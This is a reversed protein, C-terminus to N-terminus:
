GGIVENVAVSQAGFGRPQVVGQFSVQGNPLIQATASIVSAVRPDALLASKGFAAIRGAEIQSQVTGAESPLLSGYDTHYLLSKLATQLRRGLAQALNSYGAISQFDGRWPLMIQNIPGLYLDVGLFNTLYSPPQGVPSVQAGTTPMVLDSGYPAVGADKAAATYPPRLNNTAAINQWQEFDGLARAAVDMLNDNQQVRALNINSATPQRLVLLFLALQQAITLM